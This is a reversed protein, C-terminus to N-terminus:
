GKLSNLAKFYLFLSGQSPGGGWEALTMGGGQLVGEPQNEINLNGKELQERLLNLFVQNEGM